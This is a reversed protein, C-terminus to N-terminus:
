TNPDIENLLTDDTDEDNTNSDIDKEETLNIKTNKGNNNEIDYIKTILVLDKEGNLYITSNQIEFNSKDITKLRAKFYGLANKNISSNSNYTNDFYDTVREVCVDTFKEENMNTNKILESNEIKEGSEVNVNYIHYDNEDNEYSLEIILSLVNENQFYEYDVSKLKSEGNSEAEKLDNETLDIIEKNIESAKETNINLNPIRSKKGDIETVYYDYVLGKDSDDTSKKNEVNLVSELKEFMPSVANQVPEPLINNKYLEYAVVFVIILLIILVIIIKLLTHKKEKVEVNKKKFKPESKLSEYGKKDLEAKKDEKKEEDNEKKVYDEKIKQVEEVVEPDVIKTVEEQENKNNKKDKEKIKEKLEKEEKAKDNAEKKVRESLAVEINVGCKGCFKAGKELEENCEPCKM